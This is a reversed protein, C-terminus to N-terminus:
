DRCKHLGQEVSKQENQKIKSKLISEHPSSPNIKIGIM